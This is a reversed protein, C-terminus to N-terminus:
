SAQGGTTEANEAEIQRIKDRLIAANEYNEEQVAKELDQRLGNLRQSFAHLKEVRSPRKGTHQLGRHVSKLLPQVHERFVEYCHGCGIRGDRKFDAVSLGCQPCREVSAKTDIVQSTGLGQLLDLFAFSTPDTVGKEKSCSECLNVKFMKGDVIQTLYLTATHSKCVDCLM